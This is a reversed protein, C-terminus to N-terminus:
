VLSFGVCLVPDVVVLGPYEVFHMVFHVLEAALVGELNISVLSILAL